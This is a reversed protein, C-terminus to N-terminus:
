VSGRLRPPFPFPPVSGRIREASGTVSLPIPDDLRARLQAASETAERLRELKVQTDALQERLVKNRRTLEVHLLVCSLACCFMALESYVLFQFALGHRVESDLIRLQYAISVALQFAAHSAFVAFFLPAAFYRPGTGDLRAFGLAMLFAIGSWALHNFAERPPFAPESLWLMWAQLMLLIVGPAWYVRRSRHLRMGAQVVLLSATMALATADGTGQFLSLVGVLAALVLGLSVHLLRWEGRARIWHVFVPLAALLCLAATQAGLLPFSSYM